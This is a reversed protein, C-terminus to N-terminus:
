TRDVVFREWGDMLHGFDRPETVPATNGCIGCEGNHVTCVGANRRGHRRGCDFCIYQPYPLPKKM